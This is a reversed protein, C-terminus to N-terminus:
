AQGDWQWWLTYDAELGGDSASAISQVGITETGCVVRYTFMSTHAFHDIGEYTSQIYFQYTDRNSNWASSDITVERTTDEATYFWVNSTGADKTQLSTGLQWLSEDWVYYNYGFLNDDTPSQSM